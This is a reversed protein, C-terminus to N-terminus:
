QFLSRTNCPPEKQVCLVGPRPGGPKGIRANAMLTDHLSTCDCAAKVVRSHLNLHKSWVM